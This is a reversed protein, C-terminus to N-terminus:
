PTEEPYHGGAPLLFGYPIGRGGHADAGPGNRGPHAAGARPLEQERKAGKADANARTGVTRENMLLTAVEAAVGDAKRPTCPTEPFSVCTSKYYLQVGQVKRKTAIEGRPERLNGQM